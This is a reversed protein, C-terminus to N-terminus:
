ACIYEKIKKKSKSEVRSVKVQSIGLLEATEQQTYDKFYRYNIVKRGLEDLENLSDDILIKTDYDYEKGLYDYMNSEGELTQEDDLSIVKECAKLIELITNSDVELYASIEKLSPIHKLKQTLLSQAKKIDKYIKLCGKSLKISNNNRALMYMEGFIFSRAYYYFSVNFSPNFSNYAKIAGIYGAQYLDKKEVNYFKKGISVIQKFLEEDNIVEELKM